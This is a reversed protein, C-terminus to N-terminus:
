IKFRKVVKLTEEVLGQKLEEQLEGNVFSYTRILNKYKELLEEIAKEEENQAELILVELEKDEV